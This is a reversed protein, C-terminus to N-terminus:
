VKSTAVGVTGGGWKRSKVLGGGDPTGRVGTRSRTQAMGSVSEWSSNDLLLPAYIASNLYAETLPNVRGALAQNLKSGPFMQPLSRAESTSVGEKADRKEAKPHQIDDATLCCARNFCSLPRPLPVPTKPLM